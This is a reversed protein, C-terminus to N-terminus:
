CARAGQPSTDPGEGDAWGAAFLAEALRELELGRSAKLLVLDGDKLYSLVQSVLAEMGTAHFVMPEGAEPETGSVAPAARSSAKAARSMALAKEASRASIGAEEGFFFLAQAQSRAAREGLVVHESALTEGLERMGGLVYVKRGPWEVEDCLDLVARMSDPNANYCDRFLSIRGEFLESRGFLPKVSSLGAAARDPDLGLEHAVALAALADLLNHRGPLPYSIKRGKWSLTWGALGRSKAGEFGPTSKLGFERVAGKVGSSLFQKYEDEDWVFGKQSGTFRSFIKKKEEAIGQRSGIMGIHATGINTILAIDPEFLEALEDMEGRRNMGMEFVAAKHTPELSFLALPLGSDSNLNGKGVAVTGEPYAARLIAGLCEKTTTKGSSGTVGIRLLGRIRRVHERALRQFGHLTNDLFILCSKELLGPPVSALVSHAKEKEALACSAGRELAQVIYDHGDAREGKLAVFLSGPGCDRSDLSVSTVKARLNGKCAAGIMGGIEGAEFIM